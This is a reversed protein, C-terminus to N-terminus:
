EYSILKVIEHSFNKVFMCWSKQESSYIHDLRSQDLREGKMAQRTYHPGFRSGACLYNDVLNFRDVLKNWVRAETGHILTSNGVADDWLEVM